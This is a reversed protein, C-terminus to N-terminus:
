PVVVIGVVVTAVVRRHVFMPRGRVKAHRGIHLADPLLVVPLSHGPFIESCRCYCTLMNIKGPWGTECSHTCLRFSTRGATRALDRARVVFAWASYRGYAPDCVHLVETKIKGLVRYTTVPRNPERNAPSLQLLHPARLHSM